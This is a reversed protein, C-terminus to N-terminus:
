LLLSCSVHLYTVNVGINAGDSEQRPRWFMLHTSATRKVFGKISVDQLGCKLRAARLLRRDHQWSRRSEARQMTWQIETSEVARFCGEGPLLATSNGM